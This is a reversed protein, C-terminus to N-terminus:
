DRQFKGARMNLEVRWWCVDGDCLVLMGVLMVVRDAIEAKDM